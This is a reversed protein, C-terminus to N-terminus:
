EVRRAPAFRRSIELLDDELPLDGRAEYSPFDPAPGAEDNSLDEIDVITEAPDQVMALADPAGDRANADEDDDFAADILAEGGRHNFNLRPQDNQKAQDVAIAEIEPETFIIKAGALPIEFDATRQTIRVTMRAAVDDPADKREVAGDAVQDVSMTVDEHASVTHPLPPPMAGQGVPAEPGASLSVAEEEEGDPM